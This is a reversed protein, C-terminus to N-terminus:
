GGKHTSMKWDHSETDGEGIREVIHQLRTIVEDKNNGEIEVTLRVPAATKSELESIREKIAEKYKGVMSPLKLRAISDYDCFDKVNPMSYGAGCRDDIYVGGLPFGGWTGADGALKLWRKLVFLEDTGGVEIPEITNEDEYEKWIQDINGRGEVVELGLDGDPDNRAVSDEAADEDDFTEIDNGDADIVIWSPEFEDYMADYQKVVEAWVDHSYSYAACIQIARHMDCGEWLGTDTEEDECNAIIYAADEITYSRDTVSEDFADRINGYGSIDCEIESIDEVDDIIAQKVDEEIDSLFSFADDKVDKKYDM